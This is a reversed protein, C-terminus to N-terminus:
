VYTFVSCSIDLFELSSFVNANFCAILSEFGKKHIKNNGINLYKLDKIINEHSLLRCLAMIGDNGLQNYSLDLSHCKTLVKDEYLRVLAEVGVSGISNGPLHINEIHNCKGQRIKECILEWQNGNIRSSRQNGVANM